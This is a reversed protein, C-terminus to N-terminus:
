AFTKFSSETNTQIVKQVAEIEAKVATHETDIQQMQLTLKKDQRQMSATRQEYLDEARSDDANFLEDFIGSNTRWDIQEYLGDAEHGTITMTQQSYSDARELLAYTGDRLGDEISKKVEGAAPTYEDYLQSTGVVVVKLGMTNLNTTNIQQYALPSVGSTFLERNSIADTYDTAIKELQSSLQLKANCIQQAQYELDSQRATLTLFRTQSASLGM